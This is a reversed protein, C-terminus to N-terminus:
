FYGFRREIGFVDSEGHVLYGRYLCIASFAAFFNLDNQFVLYGYGIVTVMVALWIVTRLNSLLGFVFNMAFRIMGLQFMKRGGKGTEM